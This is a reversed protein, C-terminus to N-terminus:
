WLQNSIRVDAADQVCVGIQGIADVGQLCHRFCRACAAIMIKSDGIMGSRCMVGAPEAYVFDGCLMALNVTEVAFVRVTKADEFANLAINQRIPREIIRVLHECREIKDNGADVAAKAKVAFRLGIADNAGDAIRACGDKSVHCSPLEQPPGSVIDVDRTHEPGASSM